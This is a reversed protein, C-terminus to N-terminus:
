VDEVFIEPNSGDADRGHNKHFGHDKEAMQRAAVADQLTDFCGIHLNKGDVGIAAIWKGTKARYSVGTHGSKNNHYIPMNKKNEQPSVCRLNAATNNLKNGDIHDIEGDPWAGHKLAYCVTHATVWEGLLMGVKYGRNGLCGLAETGAYRGNWSLCARLSNKASPFDEPLRPKWYLVGNTEDYTILRSVEKLDFRM